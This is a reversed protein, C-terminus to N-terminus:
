FSLQVGAEMYYPMIPYDRDNYRPGFKESGQEGFLNSMLLYVSAHKTVKQTITLDCLMINDLSKTNIRQNPWQYYDYYYNVVDGKFRGVLEVTMKWPFEYSTNFYIQHRPIYAGRRWNDETVQTVGNDFIIERNLQRSFYYNWGGGLKLAPIPKWDTCLELGLLNQKNMNRPFWWGTNDPFWQIKDKTEWYVIGAHLNGKNACVQQDVAWEWSWNQEPRLSPNGGQPWFLDNFTPARFGNGGSFKVQTAPTLDYVLGASPSWRSYFYQHWDYRVAANLKLKEVVRWQDQLYVGRKLVHPNWKSESMVQGSYNDTEKTWGSLSDRHFDTGFLLTNNEFIEADLQFDYGLTSTDFVNDNDAIFTAFNVADWGDYKQFSRLKQVDYNLINKFHITDTVAYTTTVSSYFNQNYNRDFTSTVESNGYRAITGEAPRAGPIGIHDDHFSIATDIELRDYPKAFTQVAVNYAQYDSNDRYGASTVYNGSVNYGVNGLNLGHSAGQYFTNYGGYSTKTYLTPTRSVPKKTIINIVGGLANSGYLASAPGRMVEIREINEVPYKSFDFAGNNIDNVPRGDILVLSQNANTGRISVNTQAGLPGFSNVEVDSYDRLVDAADKVVPEKMASEEIITSRQPVDFLMEEMRSATVMVPALTHVEGVAKKDKEAEGSKAAPAPSPRESGKSKEEGTNTQADPEGRRAAADRNEEQQRSRGEAGAASVQVPCLSVGSVLFLVCACLAFRKVWVM